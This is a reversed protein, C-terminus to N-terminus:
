KKAFPIGGAQKIAEWASESTAFEIFNKIDGAYNAEKYILALTAFSPYGEDLPDKGDIDLIGVNTTKAVDYPGFGIAGEKKEVIEFIEPTSYATKSKETITVAKFGPFSDRLVQLSSDDEERRVVRIKADQGGAEKWNTTEGGYIACIRDASLAKVTESTNVYFVVPIKAFPRYTLGYPKEKDKIERAVRGIENKDTGVMKIGGGSGISKPVNVRIDPHAKGFAEGIAKLVIVGDGTGVITIDSAFTAGSFAFIFCFLTILAKKWYPNM